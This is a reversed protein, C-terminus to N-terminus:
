RLPIKCVCCAEPNFLPVDPEPFSGCNPCRYARSGLLVSIAAAFVLGVSFFWPQSNLSSLLAGILLVGPAAAGLWLGRRRSRRFERKVHQSDTM